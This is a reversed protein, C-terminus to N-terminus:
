KSAWPPAPMTSAKKDNSDEALRKAFIGKLRNYCPSRDRETLNRGVLWDLYTGDASLALMCKKFQTPTLVTYRKGIRDKDLVLRRWLWMCICYNLTGWLRFYEPDRGWAAHATNLFVILNQAAFMDLQKALNAAGLQSNATAPTEYMSANWCRLTASMSVVPTNVNRRLNDYGVFDCAQRIAQLPPSTMELARLLDDPRLKVIHSNLREFEEAAEGMTDFHCVRVDCIIEKMASLKFAELRHQGDIVWLTENDVGIKGLTIIGSIEVGNQKMEEAMTLVKCNVRIPRQFPPIRWQNIQDPTIILTDMLSRVAKPAEKVGRLQIVTAM